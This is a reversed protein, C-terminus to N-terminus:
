FLFGTMGTAPTCAERVGETAPFEQRRGSAYTYGATINPNLRFRCPAPKEPVPTTIDLLLSVSGVRSVAPHRYYNDLRAKKALTVTNRTAQLVPRM